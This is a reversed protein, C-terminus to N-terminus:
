PNVGILPLAVCLYKTFQSAHSQSQFRIQLFRLHYHNNSTLSMGDAAGDAYDRIASVLLINLHLQYTVAVAEAVQFLYM